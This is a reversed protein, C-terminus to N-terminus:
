PNAVLRKLSVKGGLVGAGDNAFDKTKVDVVTLDEGGGVSYCGPFGTAPFILPDEPDVLSEPGITAHVVPDSSLNATQQFSFNILNDELKRTKRCEKKDHKSGTDCPFNVMDQCKGVFSLTENCVTNGGFTLCGSLASIFVGKIKPGKVEAGGPNNGEGFGGGGQATGLGLFLVACCTFGMLLISLRSNLTRM